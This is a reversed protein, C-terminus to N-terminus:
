SAGALTHWDRTIRFKITFHWYVWWRDLGVVTCGRRLRRVIENEVARRVAAVEGPEVNYIEVTINCQRDPPLKDDHLRNLILRCGPPMLVGGYSIGCLFWLAHTPDSLDRNEPLWATIRVEQRRLVGGQTTM